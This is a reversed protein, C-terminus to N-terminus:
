PATIVLLSVGQRPLMLKIEASGNSVSISKEPELEAQRGAKELTSFDKESLTMPSGLKKWTEYSNDTEIIFVPRDPIASLMESRKYPSFVHWALYSIGAVTALIILWLIKRKM